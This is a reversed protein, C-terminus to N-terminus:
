YKVFQGDDNGMDLDFGGNPNIDHQDRIVGGRLPAGPSNEDRREVAPPADSPTHPSAHEASLFDPTVLKSHSTAHLAIASEDLKFFSMADRQEEVQASLEQASSALEEAAAASQQVVQDLQQLARNIEDSGVDQERAAVSIEQVLEATKQIDPVLQSLREGAQEAVEVTNSSLEGIEGAAKQSREALKRVESAVVAFGKGHEGARAAEIAANLALLNTQRAIEEIISIKEAISKMATVAELVTRGSEDADNAAKQAIKETQGANNASQRINASMQEMASSIQELSAAQTSSGDGLDQATGSVQTATNASAEASGHVTALVDTLRDVTTNVDDKLQAFVGMYEKDIKQTLDGSALGRLVRVVDEISTDTTSLIQNIGQALKLFFGQKGDECVQQSFDGQAAAAVINAVENEVEVEATRDQWEVVTGLREGDEDFVPTAIIHLTLGNVEVTSRYTTQLNELIERQHSPDRHFIDINKGILEYRNFDPIVEKLKDEIDAFMSEVAKNIYIIDLNIDAMMINVEASDLAAKVRTNERAIIRESEIREEEVRRARLEETRDDWETVVGIKDGADDFVPSAMIRFEREGFTMDFRTPELLGDLVAAAETNGALLARMDEGVLGNEGFGTVVTQVDRRVTEFMKQGAENVYIITNDADSLTICTSASDLAANIRRSEIAQKRATEIDDKLRTQMKDLENMLLGMEDRSEVQIDTDYIGSGIYNFIDVVKSVSRVINVIVMIAIFIALMIVVVSAGIEQMLSTRLSAIRTELLKRVKESSSFLLASASHIAKDGDDYIDDAMLYLSESTLEEMTTAADEVNELLETGTKMFANVPEELVPKILADASIAAAVGKNVADILHQANRASSILSIQEDFDVEGSLLMAQATSRIMSLENIIYPLRNAIVEILPSSDAGADLALNSKSAVEQILGIVSEIVTTHLKYSDEPDDMSVARDGLGAWGTKIARWLEGTDFDDGYKEHVMEVNDVASSVAEQAANIEDSLSDAGNLLANVLDRHRALNELLITVPEIYEIGKYEMKAYDISKSADLVLLTLLMIVPLLLMVIVAGLKRSLRVNKLFNLKSGVSNFQGLIKM